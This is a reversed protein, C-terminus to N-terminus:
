LLTWKNVSIRITLDNQKITFKTALPVDNNVLQYNEYRIQWQENNYESILALPLLTEPHYDIKDNPNYVLGKLWYTLAQTPLTFGSLSAILQDLNESRYSQGDLKITHINNNSKLQLVNIGLYSNLDLKQSNNSKEYQWRLSTAERKKGQIFAIKGNIQWDNLKSLITNRQEITQNTKLINKFPAKSSCGNILIVLLSLFIFRFFQTM